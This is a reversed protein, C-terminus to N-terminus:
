AESLMKELQQKEYLKAYKGGLKMLEEHSGYECRRGEDLVLIRDANQITTIRHAIIITTKGERVRKLNELIQEETDTDVASLADDLILIPADKLVARAISSRQKQGGSMTVGREGVMTAYKAPFEIINDHVCATKAAEIVGDLDDYLADIRSSRENMRDDLYDGLRRQSKTFAGLGYHEEELEKYDRIGFAINAQVTDSFLFNDQPVCAIQKRLVDLPIDQIDHGDFRIQGRETEYLRLLLNVLTTKGCGTRGIVALTSGSDVKVDVGDLVKPSGPLYSFTLGNLEIEGDLRDIGSDRGTDKIESDMKMIASVRKIAASGQSFSNISDGAAIMPWVLMGIYQNFAVFQGLSIQGNYVQWGGYLLTIARSIGIVLELMPMVISNLKVVKMTADMNDRSVKLFEKIDRREQVFAKLVRIGSISEQVRDSMSSFAENKATYMKEATKAYWIAGFMIVLMPLCALVTMKVNVYTVMKVLVMVTLVVADFTSIVAPGIAMRIMSIDNTFHAMLDGTKNENFYSTSMSSLKSFLDNRIEREIKRASGFLFFRWGFRGLAMGAGVLLILIVDRKVDAATFAGTSLGDTVEGTFQPIYLSLLDVAFLVLIGMIYSFTYKRIYKWIM